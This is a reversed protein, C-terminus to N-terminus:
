EAQMMWMVEKLNKLLERVDMEGALYRDIAKESNNFLQYYHYDRIWADPLVQYLQRAKDPRVLWEAQPMRDQIAAYKNGAAQIQAEDVSAQAAEWETKAESAETEWERRMEMSIETEMGEPKGELLVHQTIPTPHQAMWAIYDKVLEAHKSYPNVVMVALSCHMVTQNDLGYGLSRFLM